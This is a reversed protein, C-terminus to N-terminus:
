LDNYVDAAMEGLTEGAYHAGDKNPDVSHIGAMRNIYFAFALHHGSRTTVYGALGKTVLGDSNLLDDSGWTGTKAHVNGDARSGNQINFLTGDVGLTPLGHFLAGFWPQRAAWTLYSVMFRPTFFAFSGLGDQQSAGSLDLGAHTLLAREQRFGAHLLDAPAHAVYIGWMYPMLAAHLNDSVKLTVYVDQALPPSVHAAVVNAPVYSAAATARDFPAAGEPTDVSVGEDRLAIAFAMQAFGAPHPVRYTYLIARGAPMTGTVTVTHSGDAERHDKSLDITPESGPAGTRADSVFRAYPTQPSVTLTVPDGPHAGPTVTVDVLNDNVVAPSVVSGTGFEAGPDAFLSSDVIVRGDIERVGHARVQAALQRLVALPDGPVAKTDYTGDYSHDENEFAMTGDPRTRQSLNPDGSAVLVLDGHLVGDVIPGTRYVPTTWRFNPGLLALSTGETLLKTTSAAEMLVGANRAYVVRHADLDYVEGAVIAHAFRPREAVGNLELALAATSLL